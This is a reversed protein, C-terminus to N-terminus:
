RPTRDPSLGHPALDMPKGYAAFIATAVEDLVALAGEERSQAPETTAYDFSPVSAVPSPM